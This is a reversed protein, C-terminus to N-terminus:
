GLKDRDIRQNLHNNKEEKTKGQNNQASESANSMLISPGFEKILKDQYSKDNDM